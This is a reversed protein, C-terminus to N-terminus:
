EEIVCPYPHFRPDAGRTILWAPRRLIVEFWLCLALVCRFGQLPVYVAFAMGHGYLSLM